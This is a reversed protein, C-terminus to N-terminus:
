LSLRESSMEGSDLRCHSPCALTLSRWVETFDIPNFILVLISLVTFVLIYHLVSIIIESVSRFSNVMEPVRASYYAYSLTFISINSGYTCFHSMGNYGQHQDPFAAAKDQLGIGIM